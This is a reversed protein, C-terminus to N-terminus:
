RLARGWQSQKGWRGRDETGVDVKVVDARGEGRDLAAWVGESGEVVGMWGRKAEGALSADVPISDGTCVRTRTHLPSKLVNMGWEGTPTLQPHILLIGDSVLVLLVPGRAPDHSPPPRPGAPAAFSPHSSSGTSKIDGDDATAASDKSLHARPPYLPLIALPTAPLPLTSHPIINASSAFPLLIQQSSYIALTGGSSSHATSGAQSLSTLNSNQNPHFLVIWRGEPSTTIHSSPGLLPPTPLQRAPSSGDLPAM